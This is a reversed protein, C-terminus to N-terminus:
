ATVSIRERFAGLDRLCAARSAEATAARITVLLLALNSASTIQNQTGSSLMAAVARSSAPLWRLKFPLVTKCELPASGAESSAAKFLRRAAMADACGM